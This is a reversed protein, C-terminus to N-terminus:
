ARQVVSRRLLFLVEVHGIDLHVDIPALHKQVDTIGLEVPAEDLLTIADEETAVLTANAM